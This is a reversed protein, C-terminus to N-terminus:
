SSAFVDVQTTTTVLVMNNGIAQTPFQNQEAGISAQFKISGTNPNLAPAAPGEWAPRM